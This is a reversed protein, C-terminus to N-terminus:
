AKRDRPRVGQSTCAHFFVMLIFLAIAGLPDIFWGIVAALGYFLISVVPRILQAGMTGRRITPKLLEPHYHLYPFIPLWAASMLGAVLAYLVVAARQDDLNGSRFADAMVGTPYPILSTMGLGCLNIWNLKLDVKRIAYFLAHHNLWIIGVYLFALLYSLYSPWNQLLQAGLQGAVVVPRHIELVLLTVIIAFVGDSFAEVRGTETLASEKNAISKEAM